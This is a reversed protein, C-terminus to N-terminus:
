LLGETYLACSRAEDGPKERRGRLLRRIVKSGGSRFVSQDMKARSRSVFKRLPSVNKRSLLTSARFPLECHRTCLHLLTKQEGQQPTAPLNSGHLLRVFRWFQCVLPDSAQYWGQLLLKVNTGATTWRDTSLFHRLTPEGGEM